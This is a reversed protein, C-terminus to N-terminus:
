SPEPRVVTVEGSSVDYDFFYSGDQKRSLEFRCIVNKKLSIVYDVKKNYSDSKIRSSPASFFVSNWLQQCEKATQNRLSASYSKNSNAPWGNENLFFNQGDLAVDEKGTAKGMAHLTAIMRSFIGAHFEIVSKQSGSIPEDFYKVGVFILVSVACFVILLEFMKDREKNEHKIFQNDSM